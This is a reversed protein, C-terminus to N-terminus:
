KNKRDNAIFRHDLIQLVWHVISFTSFCAFFCILLNLSLNLDDEIVEFVIKAAKTEEKEMMTQESTTTNIKSCKSEYDLKPSFSFCSNM